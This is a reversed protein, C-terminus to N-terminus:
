GLLNNAGGWHIVCISPELYVAYGMNNLRNGIESDEDTVLREDFGSIRNFMKKVIIFNSSPIYNVRGRKQRNKMTWVKEVWSSKKPAVYQYGTAVINLRVFVDKVAKRWGKCLTCDSDIFALLENKAQEAGKNRLAAITIKPYILVKVGEYTGVIELTKDTSGNDVVIIEDSKQMESIISDLCQAIYKEENLVPIIFSIRYEIAQNM